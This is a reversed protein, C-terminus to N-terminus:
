PNHSLVAWKSPTRHGSQDHPRLPELQRFRYTMALKVLVVSTRISEVDTIGVKVLISTLAAFLAGGIAYVM